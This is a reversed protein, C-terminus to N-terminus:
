NGKCPVPPARGILRAGATDLAVVESPEPSTELLYATGDPGGFVWAKERKTRGAEIGTAITAHVEGTVVDQVVVQAGDASRFAWRNGEVPAFHGDRLAFGEEGGVPAITSGDEPNVLWSHNTETQTCPGTGVVASPGVFAGFSCDMLRSGELPLEFTQALTAVDFARITKAGSADATTLIARKRDADFRGGKTQGIFIDQCGASASVCIKTIPRGEERRFGDDFSPPFSPIHDLDDEPLPKLSRTFLPGEDGARPALIICARDDEGLGGCYELRGDETRRAFDPRLARLAETVEPPDCVEEPTVPTQGPAEEPAESNPDESKASPQQPADKSCAGVIVATTAILSLVPRLGNM